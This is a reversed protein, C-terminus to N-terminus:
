QARPRALLRAMVPVTVLTMTVAGVSFAIWERDEGGLVFSASMILGVGVASAVIWWSAGDYRERLLRYQSYGLIGGAILAVLPILVFSANGDMDVGALSAIALVMALGLGFGLGGGIASARLWRGVGGVREGLVVGQLLGVVAGTGIGGLAFSVAMAAAMPITVVSGNDPIDFMSFLAGGVAWGIGFLAVLGVAWGILTLVGFGVLFEVRRTKGMEITTM